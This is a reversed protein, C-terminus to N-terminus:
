APLPVRVDGMVLQCQQRGTTLVTVGDDATLPTIGDDATLYREPARSDDGPSRRVLDTELFGLAFRSAPLPCENQKIQWGGIM